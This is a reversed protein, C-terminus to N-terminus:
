SKMSRTSRGVPYRMWATWHQRCAEFHRSSTTTAFFLLFLPLFFLLFFYDATVAVADVARAATSPTSTRALISWVPSDSGTHDDISSHFM